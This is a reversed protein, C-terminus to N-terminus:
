QIHLDGYAISAHSDIRLNGCRYSGARASHAATRSHKRQLVACRRLAGRWSGLARVPAGRAAALRAGTLRATPRALRQKKLSRSIAISKPWILPQPRRSDAHERASSWADFEMKRSRRRASRTSLVIWSIGSCCAPLDAHLRLIETAVREWSRNWAQIPAHPDDMGGCAVITFHNHTEMMEKFVADALEYTSPQMWIRTAPSLGM